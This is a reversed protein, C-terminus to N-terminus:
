GLLVNVPFDHQVTARSIRDFAPDDPGRNAEKTMIIRIGVSGPSKWETLVDAVAPDDLDVPKVLVRQM